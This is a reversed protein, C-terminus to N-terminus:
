PLGMGTAGRRRARATTRRATGSAPHSAATPARVPWSSSESSRRGYGRRRASPRRTSSRATGLAQPRSRSCPTSRRCSRRRGIRHSRRLDRCAPSYPARRGLRRSTSSPGTGRPRPGCQRRAITGGRRLSVGLRVDAGAADEVVRGEDDGLRSPRASPLGTLPVLHVVEAREAQLGVTRAREQLSPRHRAM